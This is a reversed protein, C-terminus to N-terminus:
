SARRFFFKALNTFFFKALNKFIKVEIRKFMEKLQSINGFYLGEEIRVVLV